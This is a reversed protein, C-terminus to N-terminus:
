GHGDEEGPGSLWLDLFDQGSFASFLSGPPEVEEPGSVLPGM